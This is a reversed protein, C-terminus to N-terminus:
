TSQDDSELREVWAHMQQLVQARGAAEGADWASQLDSSCFECLGISSHTYYTELWAKFCTDRDSM